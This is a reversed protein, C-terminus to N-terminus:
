TASEKRANVWEDASAAFTEWVSLPLDWVTLPTIGPWVHCIM